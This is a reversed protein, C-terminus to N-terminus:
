RLPFDLWLLCELLQVNVQTINTLVFVMIFIPDNAM